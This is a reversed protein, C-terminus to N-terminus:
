SIGSCVMEQAFFLKKQHAITGDYPRAVVSVGMDDIIMLLPRENLRRM